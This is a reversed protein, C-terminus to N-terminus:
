ALKLPRVPHSALWDRWLAIDYNAASLLKETGQVGDALIQPDKSMAEDVDWMRAAKATFGVADSVEISPITEAGGATAPQVKIGKPTILFAMSLMDPVTSHVRYAFLSVLEVKAPLNQQGHFYQLLYKGLGVAFLKLFSPSQTAWHMAVDSAITLINGGLCDALAEGFETPHKELNKHIAGQMKTGPSGLLKPDARTTLFLLWPDVARLQHALLTEVADFVSKTRGNPVYALHDCADVNVVDFVGQQKLRNAAQSGVLAIDELRDALIEARSTIRGAQRLASETLLYTGKSDPPDETRDADYGMDFGFYEIQTDPLTDSLMRVDLLDAGPLTFYRLTERHGEQRHNDLLRKVHEAWQYDRVIQKVPHHWPAFTTRPKRSSTLEDVAATPAGFVSAVYDKEDGSLANPAEQQPAESESSEPGGESSM